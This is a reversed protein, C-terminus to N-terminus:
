KRWAATRFRDAPLRVGPTMTGDVDMLLVRIKQARRMVKAPFKIERIPMRESPVCRTACKEAVAIARRCLRRSCSCHGCITSTCWAKSDGAADVVIM